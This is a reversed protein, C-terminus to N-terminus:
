NEATIRYSRADRQINKFKYRGDVKNTISERQWNFNDTLNLVLASFIDQYSVDLFKSLLFSCRPLPELHSFVRICLFPMSKSTNAVAHLINNSFPLPLYRLIKNVPGAFQPFVKYVWGRQINDIFSKWIWCWGAKSTSRFPFSHFEIRSHNWITLGFKPRAHCAKTAPFPLRHM